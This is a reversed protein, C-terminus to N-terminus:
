QSGGAARALGVLSAHRGDHTVKVEVWEMEGVRQGTREITVSPNEPVDQGAHLKLM